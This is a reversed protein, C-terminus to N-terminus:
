HTSKSLPPTPEKYRRIIEFRNKHTNSMSSELTPHIKSMLPGNKIGVAGDNVRGSLGPFALGLM